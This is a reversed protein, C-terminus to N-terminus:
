YRNRKDKYIGEESYFRVKEEYMRQEATRILRNIDDFAAAYAVGISLHYGQRHTDEKIQNVREEVEQEDIDIAFAVFEDGGIRFTDEPGFKEKLIDAVSQLMKDGAAHGLSNNLEHLGNADIYICAISKKCVDMYTPLNQEYSNRNLLGTLSDYESLHIIQLQNRLNEIGNKTVTYMIAGYALLILLQPFIMYLVMEGLDHGLDPSTKPTVTILVSCLTEIYGTLFKLNWAGLFYALIPSIICCTVSSFLAMWYIRYSRYQSALLMPLLFLLTAHSNFIVTSILTLIMILSMIVYKSAAHSLMKENRIIVQPILILIMSILFCTRMTVKNVEFINLENLIFALLLTAGMVLMATAAYRNPKIEKETILVKKERNLM